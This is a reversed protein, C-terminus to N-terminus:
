TGHMMRRAGGNKKLARALQFELLDVREKLYKNECILCRGEPNLLLRKHCVVCHAPVDKKHHGQEM